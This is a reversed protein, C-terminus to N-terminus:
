LIRRRRAVHRLAARKQVRARRQRYAGKVAARYTDWSKYRTNTGPKYPPLSRKPNSRGRRKKKGFVTGAFIAVAVVVVPIVIWSMKLKPGTGPPEVATTSSILEELVDRPLQFVGAGAPSVEEPAQTEGRGLGLHWM